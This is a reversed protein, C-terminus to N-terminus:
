VHVIFNVKLTDLKGRKQCAEIYKQRFEDKTMGNEKTKRRHYNDGLTEIVPAHVSVDQHPSLVQSSM